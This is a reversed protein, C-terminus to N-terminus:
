LSDHVQRSMALFAIVDEANLMASFAILCMVGSYEANESWSQFDRANAYPLALISACADAEIKCIASEQQLSSASMDRFCRPEVTGEGAAFAGSCVVLPRPPEGRDQAICFTHVGRSHMLCIIRHTM